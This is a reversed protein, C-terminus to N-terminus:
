TPPELMVLSGGRGRGRVCLALNFQVAYTLDLNIADMLSNSERYRVLM